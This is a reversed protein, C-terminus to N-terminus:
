HHFHPCANIETPLVLFSALDLRLGHVLVVSFFLIQGLAFSSEFSVLYINESPWTKWYTQSAQKEWKRGSGKVMIKVLFLNQPPMGKTFIYRQLVLLKTKRKLTVLQIQVSQFSTKTVSKKKKKLPFCLASSIGCWLFRPLKLCRYRLWLGADTNLEKAAQSCRNLYTELGRRTM